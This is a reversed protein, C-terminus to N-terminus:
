TLAHDMGLLQQQSKWYDALASSASGQGHYAEARLLDPVADSAATTFAELASELEAKRQEKSLTGAIALHAHGVGLHAAVRRIMHSMAGSPGLSRLAANYCDLAYKGSSRLHPNRPNLYADGLLTLAEADGRNRLAEWVTSLTQDADGLSQ